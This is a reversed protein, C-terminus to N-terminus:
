ARLAAAGQPRIDLITAAGKGFVSEMEAVFQPLMGVPVFNLTTGAFGGGHVRWAGKGALMQGALMLALTIEQRDPTAYINQLYMMSSQGSAIIGQLFAPLDDQWLAQVMRDVRKNEEYFHQARLIARDRIEPALAKRLAPISQLFTDQPVERLVSKGFYQAVARMEQPIAAYCPTLDDHSGGTSIVVLAFGKQAFDYQVADIQPEDNAFDITILSGMSSAMQDMLGSPKGFFENEAYQSCKARTVAGINWGNYLADFVACVMVEFAASSSLGSGSFVTSQVAADFGGLKYGHDSLGRAVGRVLAATTGREADVPALDRLNMTLPPYGVSHLRVTDDARPTVAALADLNVAAALVKGRNHDTHNGSIETRGPASVLLVEEQEGFAQTHAKLLHAYREKQRTVMDNRTGYLTALRENSIREFQSM